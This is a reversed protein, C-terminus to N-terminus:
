SFRSQKRHGIYWVAEKAAASAGKGLLVTATVQKQHQWHRWGMLFARPVPPARVGWSSAYLTEELRRRGQEESHSM